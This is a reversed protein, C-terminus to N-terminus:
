EIKILLNINKLIEPLSKEGDGVIFIDIFDALPEPNFACPGGAIILPDEERRDISKLPIKGVELINLINTFSMEYQLTFGLVDLSHLAIKNELTFLPISENRLIEEMDIAPSFVRECAIDPIRNILDYLIQLGMYSMGIEYLDPFAFGFTLDTKTLDKIVANKECGIYRGPKEVDKLIPNINIINVDKHKKVSNKINTNTM